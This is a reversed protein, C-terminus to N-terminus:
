EGRKLPLHQRGVDADTKSASPEGARPAVSLQVDGLMAQVFPEIVAFDFQIGVRKGVDAPTATYTLEGINEEVARHNIDLSLSREKAAVGEILLHTAFSCRGNGVARTGVHFRLTYVMGAAEVRHALFRQRLSGAPADWFFYQRGDKSITQLGFNTDTAREVTWDPFVGVRFGVKETVKPYDFSANKIPIHQPQRGAMARFTDVRVFGDPNVDAPVTTSDDVRVRASRQGAATLVIRKAAKGNGPRTSLEVTGTFVHVGSFDKGVEVGFETGLDTVTVTPTRVAFLHRTSLTSHETGNQAAPLEDNMMGCEDNGKKELKATLKGVALYGGTASEVQYTAPGQLVIKAGTDYTIEM